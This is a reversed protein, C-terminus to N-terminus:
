IAFVNDEGKEVKATLAVRGLVEDPVEHDNLCGLGDLFSLLYCQDHQKLLYILPAPHSISFINLLVKHNALYRLVVM